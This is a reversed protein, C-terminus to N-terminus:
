HGSAPQNETLRFERQMREVVSTVAENAMERDAKGFRIGRLEWNVDLRSKPTTQRIVVGIFDECGPATKKVAEAIALEIEPSTMSVREDIRRSGYWWKKRSPTNEPKPYEPKSYDPKSYDPKSNQPKPSESKANESKAADEVPALPPAESTQSISAQSLTYSPLAEPLKRANTMAWRILAGLKKAAISVASGNCDDKTVDHLILLFLAVWSLFILIWAFMTGDSDAKPDLKFLKRNDTVCLSHALRFDRWSGTKCDLVLESGFSNL